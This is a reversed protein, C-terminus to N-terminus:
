TVLCGLFAQTVTYHQEGLCELVLRPELFDSVLVKTDSKKHGDQLLQEVEPPEEVKGVGADEDASLGTLGCFGEASRGLVYTELRGRLM